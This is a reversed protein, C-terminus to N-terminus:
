QIAHGGEKPSFRGIVRGRMVDMMSHISKIAAEHRLNEEAVLDATLNSLDELEANMVQEVYGALNITDRM